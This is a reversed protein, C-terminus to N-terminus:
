LLNEYEHKVKIKDIKGSSTYPFGEVNVISNPLKYDELKPRLLKFIEDIDIDGKIFLISGQDKHKPILIAQQINPISLAASEIENSSIRFGNQKFINDKRGYFYLYGDEDISFIDGTFLVREFGEGWSKFKENTLKPSRWYGNMVNSGRVVLEGKSGDRNINGVEDVVFCETENLPRGVSNPKLHYETPTLISIRKCETLGFMIFINCKPIMRSLQQIYSEPLYAGTNTILRLKNLVHKKKNRSLLILLSNVLSPVVPLCTIEWQIIKKLLMTGNYNNESLALTAGVQVSLFFQYLGYDFSLPLFCGVIDNEIMQLKEQIAKTSFIINNHTSVVGKSKGTSGSTYIIAINDNPIVKSYEMETPCKLVSEWQDELITFKNKLDESCRESLDKNSIIIFPESDNIIEKLSHEKIENHVVIYIAGIKSVALMILITPISNPLYILVRDGRKIGKNKFWNALKNSKEYLEYYTIKKNETFIAIKNSNFKLNKEVLEHILM